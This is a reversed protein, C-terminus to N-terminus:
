PNHRRWMEPDHGAPVESPSSQSDYGRLRNYHVIQEEQLLPLAELHAALHVFRLEKRTAAIGDLMERLIKEDITKAAFAENLKREQDVLRVGLAVAKGKMRDYIAEIQEIQESTLGIEGKMEMLHLPGPVGNLEAAKALGWGRGNRLDDIDANSLTKIDRKEQGAYSSSHSDAAKAPPASFFAWLM